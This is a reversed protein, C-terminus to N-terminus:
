KKFLKLFLLWFGIFWFYVAGFGGLKYNYFYFATDLISLAFFSAVTVRNIINVRYLLWATFYMMIVLEDLAYKVNWSEAM